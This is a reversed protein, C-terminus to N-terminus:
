FELFIKVNGSNVLCEQKKLLQVQRNKSYRIQKLAIGEVEELQVYEWSLTETMLEFPKLRNFFFDQTIGYSEGKKDILTAKVWVNSVAYSSLNQASLGVSLFGSKRESVQFSFQIKLNEEENAEATTKIRSLYSDSTALRQIENEKKEIESLNKNQPYTDKFTQLLATALELNESSPISLLLGVDQMLEEALHDPSETLQYIRLELEAIRLKLQQNENTLKKVGCSQFLFFLLLLGLFYKRM